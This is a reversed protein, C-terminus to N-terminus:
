NFQLNVKKWQKMPLYLYSGLICWSLVTVKSVSLYKIVDVSIFGAFLKMISWSSYIWPFLAMFIFPILIILHQFKKKRKYTNLLCAWTFGILLYQIIFIYQHYSNFTINDFYNTYGLLYVQVALSFGIVFFM